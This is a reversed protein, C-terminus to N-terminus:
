SASVPSPATPWLTTASPRPLTPMTRRPASSATTWPVSHRCVPLPMSITTAAPSSSSIPPTPPRPTPRALTPTPWVAKRGCPPVSSPLAPPIATPLPTSPRPAAWPPSSPPPLPASPVRSRTPWHSAPIHWCSVTSPTSPTRPAPAATIKTSSAPVFHRPWRTAAALPMWSPPANWRGWPPPMAASMTCRRSTSRSTSSVSLPSPSAKVSSSRCTATAAVTRCGSPTSPKLGRSTNTPWRFTSSLATPVPTSARWTSSTPLM